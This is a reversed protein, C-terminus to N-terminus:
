SKAAIVSVNGNLVQLSNTFHRISCEGAQVPKNEYQYFWACHYNLCKKNLLPCINQSPELEEPM